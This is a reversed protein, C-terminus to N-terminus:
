DKSEPPGVNKRGSKNAELYANYHADEDEMRGFAKQFKLDLKLMLFTSNWRIPMDLVMTVYNAIWCMEKEINLNKKLYNITVDNSSANDVTITCISKTSWDLFCNKIMKDITEGKYNQVVCFILLRKHLRWDDKIFHTTLTMYNNDWISTWTDITLCIRQKNLSFVIKLANKKDLYLQFVYRSITRHSPPDYKPNLAQCFKRFGEGKAHSFPLEDVIIM